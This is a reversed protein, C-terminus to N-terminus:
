KFIGLPIRSPANTVCSMQINMDPAHLTVQALAGEGALFEVVIILCTCICDFKM